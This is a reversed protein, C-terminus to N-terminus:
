AGAKARRGNGNARHGNGNGKGNIRRGNTRHGNTGARYRGVRVGRVEDIRSRLRDIEAALDDLLPELWTSAKAMDTDDLKALGKLHSRAERIPARPDTMAPTPASTRASRAAAARSQRVLEDVSWCGGDARELWKTRDPLGAVAQFHSFSLQQFRFRVTPEYRTFVWRYRRVTPYTEGIDDAFAQLSRGGYQKAVLSALRGIRWRGADASARAARGEAVLRGWDPGRSSARAPAQKTARSRAAANRAM